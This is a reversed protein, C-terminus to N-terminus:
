NKPVLFSAKCLEWEEGYTHQLLMEMDPVLVNYLSANLRLWNYYKTLSAIPNPASAVLDRAEAPTWPRCVATDGVVIKPAQM